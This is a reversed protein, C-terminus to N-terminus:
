SIEVSHVEGDLALRSFPERQEREWEVCHTVIEPGGGASTASASRAVELL